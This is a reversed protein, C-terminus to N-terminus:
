WRRSGPTPSGARSRWATRRRVSRIPSFSRDGVIGGSPGGDLDLVPALDLDVGLGALRAGVAAAHGRVQEPTSGGRAAPSVARASSRARVAVRGGGRRDVRAAGDPRARLRRRPGAGTRGDARQRAVPVGRRGRPRGGVDRAPGRGVDGPLGVVLVAAARRELPAPVVPRPPATSTATSPRAAAPAPEAPAASACGAALLGALLAPLLTRSRPGCWALACVTGFRTRRCDVSGVFLLERAARGRARTRARGSPRWRSATARPRCGPAPGRRSGRSSPRGAHARSARRPQCRRPHCTSAGPPGTRTRVYRGAVSPGCGVTTNKSPPPKTM